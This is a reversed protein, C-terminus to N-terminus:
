LIDTPLIRGYLIHLLINLMKVVILFLVHTKSTLGFIFLFTHYTDLYDCFPPQTQSNLYSAEM